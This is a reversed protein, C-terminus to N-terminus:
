SPSFSAVIKLRTDVPKPTPHTMPVARQREGSLTTMKGTTSKFMGRGSARAHLLSLGEVKSAFKIASTCRKGSTRAIKPVLLRTGAACSQGSKLFTVGPVTPIANKLDADDYTTLYLESAQEIIRFAVADSAAAKAYVFM